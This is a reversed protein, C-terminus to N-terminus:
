MRILLSLRYIMVAAEARSVPKQPLLYGNPDGVMIGSGLVWKMFDLCNDSIEDADKATIDAWQGAGLGLYSLAYHYLYGAAQERTVPEDPLYLEGMEPYYGVPTSLWWSVAEAYWAEAPVDTVTIKSTDAEPEGALRYLIVALQARTVSGKPNFCQNGVGQFIEQKSLEEIAGTYWASAELDTYQVPQAAFSPLIITFISLIVALWQKLYRKIM